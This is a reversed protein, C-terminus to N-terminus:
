KEKKKKGKKQLELIKNVRDKEYKLKKIETSKVGLELLMNVQDINNLKFLEVEEKSKDGYKKKFKIEKQLKKAPTEIGLDWPNWGAVLM